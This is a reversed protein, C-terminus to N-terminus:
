FTVQAFLLKPLFYSQCPSLGRISDFRNKPNYESRVSRKGCSRALKGADERCRGQMKEAVKGCESDAGHVSKGGGVQVLLGLATWFSSNRLM